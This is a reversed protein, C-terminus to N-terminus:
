KYWFNNKSIKGDSVRFVTASAPKILCEDLTFVEKVGKKRLYIEVISQNDYVEFPVEFLAWGGLISKLYFRVGEHAFHVEHGDRQDTEKIRIEHTMGMDHRVDIWMSVTFVGKPLHVKFLRTTDEMRGVYSGKGLLTNAATLSDFSQYALPTNQLTSRWIGAPYLVAAQMEAEITDRRAMAYNRIDEPMVSLVKLEPHEYLMKAKSLLHPYQRKVEEWKPPHVLLAIPRNNPLDDLIAPVECPEYVLQVSKIMKSIATRSMNVGMDPLGTHFATAQVRNFHGGDIDLWINESGVHYYPLPMVAQFQSFDVKNLWNDPEAAFVARNAANPKLDLKKHDQYYGAEYLLCAIPVFLMLSIFIRVQMPRRNNGPIELNTLQTLITDDAAIPSAAEDTNNPISVVPPAATATEMDRTDSLPRLMVMNYLTNVVREPQRLVNCIKSFWAPATKLYYAKHWLVYFLVINCVYFYAWTFRGLGRFQRFPGLLNVMWELGKIAFPFGCAFLLLLLSATFIGSLYKKHVRHHAAENWETDFIRFKKWVAWLTFLLCLVGAYAMAEGNVRRIPVINRDIWQYSKFNEYPLFVGEWEGLYTTFGYPNAPRDPAFDSWQIWFNLLAYPLLIMVALHSARRWINSWTRDAVCQCLTYLGLFLAALGLYYFHFQAAVWVLIGILLSQYRRSNREEYRCLLFLLLPFVWTHSLGFHMEFRGQQPSLFIMGITILSSYWAPLHLKRLLMYLIGCGLLLSLVQVINMLGVTKSSLNSVHHSWWQVSTSLIPQNDTFLVHEGYPYSMGGYHVSGSDHAVHWAATMYNKFGDPSGSLMVENAHILWKGHLVWLLIGAIILTTLLGRFTRVWRSAIFQHIATSISSSLASHINPTTNRYQQILYDATL